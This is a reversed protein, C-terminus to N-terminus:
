EREEERKILIDYGYACCTFDLMPCIKRPLGFFRYIALLQYSVVENFLNYILSNRPLISHNSICDCYVLLIAVQLDNM